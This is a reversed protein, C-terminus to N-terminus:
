SDVKNLMHAVYSNSYKSKNLMYSVACWSALIAIQEWQQEQHVSCQGDCGQILLQKDAETTSSPGTPKASKNYSDSAARM